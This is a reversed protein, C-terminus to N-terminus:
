YRIAIVCYHSVSLLPVTIFSLRLVPLSSPTRNDSSRHSDDIEM